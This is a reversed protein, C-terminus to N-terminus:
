ALVATRAVVALMHITRSPQGTADVMRFGTQPTLLIWVDPQQARSFGSPALMSRYPFVFDEPMVGVVTFAPAGAPRPVPKGLIDPDGGFRRQWYAYSLVVSQEDGAQLGRGILAPRGLM